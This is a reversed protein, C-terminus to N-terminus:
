IQCEDIDQCITNSDEATDVFEFGDSCSCSFSGENNQCEQSCNGNNVLCEDIDVCIHQQEHLSGEEILKLGEPCQCNYGGETNQCIHSCGGNENTCEDGM